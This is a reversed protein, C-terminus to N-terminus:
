RYLHHMCLLGIFTLTFGDTINMWQKKYSKAIFFSIALLADDTVFWKLRGNSYLSFGVVVLGIGLSMYLASLSRYDYYTGETGDKFWGQFTDMIM